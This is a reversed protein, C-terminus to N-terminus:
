RADQVFGYPRFAELVAELDPELGEAPVFAGRAGDPRILSFGTQHNKGTLAHELRVVRIESWPLFRYREFFPSRRWHVGTEDVLVISRDGWLAIAVRLIAVVVALAFFIAAARSVGDQRDALLWIMAVLVALLLLTEPLRAWRSLRIAVGTAPM